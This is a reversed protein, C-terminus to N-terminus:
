AATGSRRPGVPPLGGTLALFAAVGTVTVLGPLLLLTFPGPGRRRRRPTPEEQRRQRAPGEGDAAGAPDATAPDATAPAAVTPRDDNM